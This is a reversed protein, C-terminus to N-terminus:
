GELVATVGMGGAACISILGRGGKNEEIIKALTGVIRAGTAAFPHGMALSGGRINLKTRDISGVATKRGLYEKAFRADEWAALTCLVQAAFAEHIEYFDFDGLGLGLRDLMRPVAQAPAMLLGEAGRVFADSSRDAKVFDVAATQGTVLYAAIPLGNAKAYEESALFVGAAGDTLPTSNAATLTAGDDKSFAPRLTALKELTSDPRMNNDRTVGAHAFLLDDYFGAEYAAAAKKHSDYALQDQDARAIGWAQAMDECHQGMSKGTSAEANSPINPVIHGPRIKALAKLRDGATKARNVEMLVKRLGENVGVSADSTTDTGAAIGSDIQGTAIKNGVTLVTELSTGCYQQVDYAPTDNALKSTIVAERTMCTTPGLKMVTGAAVEGLTKGSLGYKDVLADISATLMAHNSQKSYATNSRCFPIRAGGVIVVKRLTDSM